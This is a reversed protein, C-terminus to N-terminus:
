DGALYRDIVDHMHAVRAELSSLRIGPAAPSRMGAQQMPVNRLDQDM